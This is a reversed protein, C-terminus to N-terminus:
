TIVLDESDQKHQSKILSNLNPHASALNLRILVAIDLVRRQWWNTRKVEEWTILMLGDRRFPLKYKNLQTQNTKLGKHFLEFFEIYHVTPEVQLGFLIAVRRNMNFIQLSPAMFFLIRSALNLCNYKPNIIFGKSQAWLCDTADVVANKLNPNQLHQHYKKYVSGYITDRGKKLDMKALSRYLNTVKCTRILNKIDDIFVDPTYKIKNKHFFYFHRAFLSMLHADSTQKKGTQFNIGYWLARACLDAIKIEQPSFKPIQTRPYRPSPM